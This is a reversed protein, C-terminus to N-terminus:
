MMDFQATLSSLINLLEELEAKNRINHRGVIDSIYIEEFLANLFAIKQDPTTFEFVLPIGGYLMYENWGDQKTGQYVSMFEAFSLPYM